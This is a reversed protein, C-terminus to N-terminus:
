PRAQQVAKLSVQCRESLHRVSRSRLPLIPMTQRREVVGVVAQVPKLLTDRLAEFKM